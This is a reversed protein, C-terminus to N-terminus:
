MMQRWCSSIRVTAAAAGNILECRTTAAAIGQHDAGAALGCRKNQGNMRSCVSNRPMQM